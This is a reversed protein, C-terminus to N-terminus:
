CAIAGSQYVEKMLFDEQAALSAGLGESLKFPCECKVMETSKDQCFAHGGKSYRQPCLGQIRDFSVPPGLRPIVGVLM